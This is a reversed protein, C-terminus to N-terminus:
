SGSFVSVSLRLHRFPGGGKRHSFPESGYTLNPPLVVHSVWLTARAGHRGPPDTTGEDRAKVSGSQSRPWEAEVEEAQPEAKGKQKRIIQPFSPVNPPTVEPTSRWDGKAM